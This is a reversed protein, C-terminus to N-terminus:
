RADDNGRGQAQERESGQGRDDRPNLQEADRHAQPSQLEHAQSRADPRGPRSTRGPPDDNRQTTM